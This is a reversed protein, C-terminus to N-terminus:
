EFPIYRATTQTCVAVRGDSFVLISAKDSVTDVRSVTGFATNVKVIESSKLFYVASDSIKMDRVSGSIIDTFVPTGDKNFVAVTSNQSGSGDSILLAYRSGYFDLRSLSGSYTFESRQAGARDYVVAKNDLIVAIRDDTLFECSYPMSGKFSVSYKVVSSYTDIVNLTSLADGSEVSLSLVAAYRGDSSLSASVVRDNKSYESVLELSSNYIKVLSTYSKSSTVILFSGNEAMEAYAIPFDLKESHVCIFSNYVAYSQRGQDYILVYENSTSMRPNTFESGLTMTMRGTSTFMKIESDGAIAIGNKFVALDQNQVPMSYSLTSPVSEGYSKVYGIDKFMYYVKEYSVTGSGFILTLLLLCALLIVSVIRAIGIGYSLKAEESSEPGSYSALQREKDFLSVLFNKARIKDRVSRMRVTARGLRSIDNDKERKLDKGGKRM